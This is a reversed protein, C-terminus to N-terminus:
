FPIYEIDDHVIEKGSDKARIMDLSNMEYFRTTTSDFGCIFKLHGINRGKAVDILATGDTPCDSFSGGYKRGYTEPRYVLMVIDAAEAIQGSDRLRNLGPVPNSHDRNLQSLAIIWIDLEKALNKLRRAVDAMQQEKNSNKMNVNLIQLYDVIAGDIGYKKKITRISAIIADISSTSRDDFFIKRDYLGSINRDIIDFHEPMLKSYLIQSSPIGSKISMMRAAIQEKKMELSYFAISDGGKSAALAISIALSTKGQGTEGAIIILDSKQLGGSRGDFQSFGTESGTLEGSGSANRDIQVFVGKIAEGITSFTAMSDTSIEKLVNEYELLIESVDMTLDYPISDLRNSLVILKRRRHLDSLIMAQNYTDSCPLKELEMIKVVNVTMNLKQMENSVSVSDPRIGKSDLSVIARFVDAHFADCFAEASLIEGVEHFVDKQMLSGLVFAEAIKDNPLIRTKDM